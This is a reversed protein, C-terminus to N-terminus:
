QSVPAVERIHVGRRNQITSISKTLSCQGTGSNGNNKLQTDTVTLTASKEGADNFSVSINSLTKNTRDLYSVDTNFKWDFNIHKDIGQNRQTIHKPTASTGTYYEGTYWLNIKDRVYTTSQPSYNFNVVPYPHLPTKFSTGNAWESWRNDYISGRTHTDRTRVRWSYTTSYKLTRQIKSEQNAFSFKLNNTSTCDYLDIIIDGRTNLIQFHYASQAGRGNEKWSFIRSVSCQGIGTQSQQEITSNLDTPSNSICQNGSFTRGNGCDNLPCLQSADATDRIPTGTRKPNCQHEVRGGGVNDWWCFNTVCESGGGAEQCRVISDLQQQSFPSPCRFVRRGSTTSYCSRPAFSWECKKNDRTQQVRTSSEIRCVPNWHGTIANCRVTTQTCSSGSCEGSSPKEERKTKNQTSILTYKNAPRQGLCLGTNCRPLTERTNYTTHDIIYRSDNHNEQWKGKTCQPNITCSPKAGTCRSERDANRSQTINKCQAVNNVCEWQYQDQSKNCSEKQASTLPTCNDETTCQTPTTGTCGGSTSCVIETEKPDGGTKCQEKWQDQPTECQGQSNCTGTTCNVNPCADPIPKQINRSECERDAVGVCEDNECKQCVASARTQAGCQQGAPLSCAGNIWQYTDCTHNPNSIDSCRGVDTIPSYNNGGDVSGELTKVGNVCRYRCRINCGIERACVKGVYEKKQGGSWGVDEYRISEETKEIVCRKKSDFTTISIPVGDECSICIQDTIYGTKIHSEYNPYAEFNGDGTTGNDITLIKNGYDQTLQNVGDVKFLKNEEGPPHYTDHANKQGILEEFSTDSYRSSFISEQKVGEVVHGVNKSEDFYCGIRERSFCGTLNCAGANCRGANNPNACFAVTNTDGHCVACGGFMDENKCWKNLTDLPTLDSAKVIFPKELCLDQKNTTDTCLEVKINTSGRYKILDITIIGENEINSLKLWQEADNIRYKYDRDQFCRSSQLNNTPCRKARIFYISLNGEEVEENKLIPNYNDSIITRIRPKIDEPSSAILHNDFREFTQGEVGVSLVGGVLLALTFLILLYKDHRQIM